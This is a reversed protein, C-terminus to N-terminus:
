AAWCVMREAFRGRVSRPIHRFGSGFQCLSVNRESLQSADNGVISVPVLPVPNTHGEICRGAARIFTENGEIVPARLRCFIISVSDLLAPFVVPPRRWRADAHAGEDM